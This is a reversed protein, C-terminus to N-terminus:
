QLAEWVRCATAPLDFKKVGARYLADSVASSFAATAGVTGAEGVGKVGLPNLRTPMEVTDLRFVPLDSARAVQYDMLTGTLLQGAADHIMREGMGISLGQAIGGQLQGEVLVPNLVRGVDEVAVYRTITVAGTDPEIEVECIHSGNPFTAAPPTFSREISWIGGHELQAIRALTATNNTGVHHFGGDRFRVDAVACGFLGAAKETGEGILTELVTWLASGGVTLGASGGNGKGFSLANTDGQRYDITDIPIQLQQAVMLTLSTEHGQGVSMVGPAVVVRGEATVSVCAFDPKPARMPGGASEICNALGIGYLNGRAEAEARRKESGTNRALATAMVKPFDGSDLPADLATTVPLAEPPILNRQRLAVPDLGNERAVRDLVAEIAMTAEPRGNGRFPALPARASLMGTVEAAVHPVHYAGTLGNINGILGMARQGPFAGADIHFAARIATIRQDANLAIAVEAQVARGQADALMSESRSPIWALDIKLRRAAWALAADEVTMYSKLGFSGGVDAAQVHISNQSWGFHEAMQNRLAFPNQTSARYHLQGETSGKVMSGRPELALATIRPINLSILATFAAEDFARDTASDKGFRRCFAIGSPPAIETVELEITEIADQVLTQTDAIILALPQGIHRIVDDALIPQAINEAAGGDDRPLPVHPLPAIGDRQLDTATFIARVGPLARAADVDLRTVQASAVDARLFGARLTEPGAFDAVYQGAGSLLRSDELRQFHASPM